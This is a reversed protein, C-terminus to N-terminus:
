LHRGFRQCALIVPLLLVTGWAYGGLVDSPWHAGLWVNAPGTFILVAWSVVALAARGPTALPLAVALYALFGYFYTSSMVHGSPFSPSNFSSRLEVIGETAETPRPRDVMEKIGLQLLPLIILGAALIVAERRFGRLWLLLALAGGGALMLQTSTISRVADALTQGPFALGQAWSAIRTDAPLTDHFAALVSLTISQSRLVLWLLA